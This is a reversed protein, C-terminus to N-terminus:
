QRRFIVGVGDRLRPTWGAERAAIGAAKNATWFAGHTWSSSPWGRDRMEQLSVQAEPGEAEGLFALREKWSDGSVQRVVRQGPRQPRPPAAERAREVRELVEDAKALVQERTPEAPPEQRPRRPRFRGDQLSAGLAEMVQFPWVERSRAAQVLAAEPIGEDLGPRLSDAVEAIVAPDGDNKMM